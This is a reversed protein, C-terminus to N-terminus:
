AAREAIFVGYRILGQHVAREAERLADRASRVDFTLPPLAASAAGAIWGVLARKIRLLLERLGDSADWHERVVFGADTLSQLYSQASLARQLCTGTHIWERLASPLEGNLVMDSLALRGGPRLVRRMERLAGPQDVFTSLACECLVADVSAADCPISHADGARIEFLDASSSIASADLGIGRIPWADTIARLSAGTGCAVDLLTEDRQLALREAVQLTLELGGPHYSDGLLQMVDSRQYFAACCSGGDATGCREAYRHTPTPRRPSFSELEEWLVTVSGAAREIADRLVAELLVPDMAVRANLLWTMARVLPMARDDIEPLGGRRVLAGGGGAPDVSTVKVHTVPAVRLNEFFRRLVAVPEFDVDCRLHVRANCWGLQAEAAAYRDYDIILPAARTPPDAELWDNLGSGTHGSIRIIPATVQWARFTSTVDPAGLDARSLLVVDAEEIQKRFLFAIDDPLADSAVELVRWPDVVVALPALTLRNGCRDALPALVTAVLDTCSGVAEAIVTTAGADAAALLASELEDYRCCFCGGTIERVDGTAERCLWTDVLSRGQDNTIIVVREGRAQLTGALRRALTTKGAGLFGGLVYVNM